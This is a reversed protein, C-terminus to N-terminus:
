KSQDRFISDPLANERSLADCMNQHQVESVSISVDRHSVPASSSALQINKPQEWSEETSTELQSVPASSSALQINSRQEWSEETPTGLKSVPRGLVRYLQLENSQGMVNGWRAIREGAPAVRWRYPLSDHAMFSVPFSVYMHPVGFHKSHYWGQRVDM